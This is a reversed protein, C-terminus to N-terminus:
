DSWSASSWSANTSMQSSVDSSWSASNWSASTWSASNWSASSWSASSWSASTWSADSAVTSSWSAQDFAKAGTAPDTTVFTNLNENPDPPTFDLSAAFAADIEGVGAAQSGVNGLYNSTLMLAGKVQDPGWDPHRALIQAAAGAVVPAAFSTGSMWIYGPAVVREPVTNPITSGMPVPAVMYRGPAALDPKSFGDMTYGYASWWPVADDLPDATQMQDLAGVTIVFPDNGPAVSMDVPGDASGHNGAAAVVVVGNFWLREVAQDLPDFRFSTLNAGAMSFNAVRINYTDKNALIWDAAAIVDSTMSQGDANATRVSVIPANQAAGPHAPSSGALIGAVMTGHGELDATTGPSLSSLNINAIVRSGFDDVKSTDVGSDVVAVAPAQPAAGLSLGTSPDINEWLPVLDASYLWMQADPSSSAGAAAAAAAVVDTAASRASDTGDANTATVLVTLTSGVDAADATYSAGTADAIDACVLGTSDCRQWQFAYGIPDTGTWSGSDATLVQGATTTGSITPVSTNVPPALTPGPAPAPPPNPAPDPPPAGPDSAPADAVVATAASGASGEGDADRATVFVMLTSGVDAADVVYSAGTAGPVDLCTLGSSDCRLWQYTYTIPDAGTWSGTDAELVQGATATGSITPLATNLPGAEAAAVPVDPTIALVHPNSALKLLSKGTVDASVGTISRFTRKLKNGGGVKTTDKVDKAVTDSPNGKKAATSKTGQVIVHFVQGPNAQAQSVLSKPVVATIRGNPGTGKGPNKGPGNGATATTTGAVAAILLTLAAALIVAVGRRRGGGEPGSWTASGRDTGRSTDHRSM